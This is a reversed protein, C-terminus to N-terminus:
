GCCKKYKKGSGCSCPQSRSVKAAGALTDFLRNLASLRLEELRHHENVHEQETFGVQDDGMDVQFKAQHEWVAQSAIILRAVSCDDSLALQRSPIIKGEYALKNDALFLTTQAKDDTKTVDVLEGDPARWVAHFQAELLLKPLEFIAWGYVIEGGRSEVMKQVNVFCDGLDDKKGSRVAVLVPVETSALSNSFKQISETIATPTTLRPHM